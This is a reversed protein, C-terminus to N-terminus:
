YHTSRVLAVPAVGDVDECGKEEDEYYEDEKQADKSPDPDDVSEPPIVKSYDKGHQAIGDTGAKIKHLYVIAKSSM